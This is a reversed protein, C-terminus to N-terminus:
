DANQVLNIIEYWSKFHYFPFHPLDLDVLSISKSEYYRRVSTPPFIWDNACCLAINWNHQTDFNNSQEIVFRLESQLKRADVKPINSIFQKKEANSTFMRLHFKRVTKESIGMLTALAIKPPIGFDDNIPIPTGNIAISYNLKIDQTELWQEAFFVGFSWAVVHIEKYKTVLNSIEGEQLYDFCTVTDYEDCQLFNTVEPTMGWGTFFVILKSSNRKDIRYKM